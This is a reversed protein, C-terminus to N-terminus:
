IEVHELQKVKCMRSLLRVAPKSVKANFEDVSNNYENVKVEIEKKLMDCEIFSGPSLSLPALFISLSSHVHLCEQLNETGRLASAMMVLKEKKDGAEEESLGLIFNAERILAKKFIYEVSEVRTRCKLIYSLAFVLYILVILFLILCILFSIM